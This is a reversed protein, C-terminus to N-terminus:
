SAVLPLDDQIALPSSRIDPVGGLQGDLYTRRVNTDVRLDKFDSFSYLRTRGGPLRETVWMEDRRLLQQDMLQVDHTTFILQSRFHGGCEVLFGEVLSRSLSHHLSRDLEDIVCVTGAEHASLEVLFPLLEILRRSGDSEMAIDFSIPTSSTSRHVAQLKTAHLRGEKRSVFFVQGNPVLLIILSDEALTNSLDDRMDERLPVSEFPIEKSELEEIGTDFQRLLYSIRERLLDNQSIAAVRTTEPGVLRLSDRFWDSVPRFHDVKQSVSNTLFLENDRTGEYAFRLFRARKLRPAFKIQGGQRAFLTKENTSSVKVLKESVVDSDTVAFSYEYVTEDILLEFSFRTPQRVSESDLLFPQVPIREDPRIGRVVLTKAFSLAAVLNSKGSANGGYLVAVPLVRMRYKRVRALRDSHQREAGALMSFTTEERFSMWNQVSFRLLM